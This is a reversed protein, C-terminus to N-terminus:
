YLLREPGDPADIKLQWVRERGTGTLDFDSQVLNGETSSLRFNDTIPNPECWKRLQTNAFDEEQQADRAPNGSPPLLALNWRRLLALLHSTRFRVPHAKLSNKGFTAVSILVHYLALKLMADPQDQQPKAIRGFNHLMPGCHRVVGSNTKEYHKTLAANDNSDFDQPTYPSELNPGFRRIEFLPPEIRANSIESLLTKPTTQQPKPPAQLLIPLRKAALEKDIVYEAEPTERGGDVGAVGTGKRKILCGLGNAATKFGSALKKNLKKLIDMVKIAWSLIKNGVRELARKISHRFSWFAVGFIALAIVIPGYWIVARGVVLAIDDSTHPSNVPPGLQQSSDASNNLPAPGELGEGGGQAAVSTTNGAVSQTPQTANAGGDIAAKLSGYAPIVSYLWNVKM